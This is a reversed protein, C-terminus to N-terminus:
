LTVLIKFGGYVMRKYDFPQADPQMMEALRPDAMVAANVQDRHERSEFVIWSFLVTENVVAGAAKKFSILDKPNLDDGVCEIYELAGHDKWVMGALESIKKYDDLNNKAIPIVFGDVYKTM